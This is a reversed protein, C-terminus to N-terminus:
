AGPLEPSYLTTMAATAALVVVMIALEIGIVRRLALAANQPRMALQPTLRYRNVAGLAVLVAFGGLKVLLLTGYPTSLAALSGLLRWAIVAGAALMAPVLWVAWRSFDRVIGTLRADPERTSAVYLPLLAGFWYAAALLHITLLAGLGGGPDHSRTHGMLAFSLVVLAAALWAGPRSPAPRAACLALCGALGAIRAVQALGVNSQWFFQVLLPDVAGSAHGAMRMPELISRAVVLSIGIGASWAVLRRLIASTAVCDAPLRVLFLLGGVAQLSFVFILARALAVALDFAAGM